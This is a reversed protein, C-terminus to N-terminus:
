HKGGPGAALQLITDVVRIIDESAVRVSEKVTVIEQLADGIRFQGAHHDHLQSFLERTDLGPVQEKVGGAAPSETTERILGKAYATRYSDIRAALLQLKTDAGGGHSRALAEEKLEGILAEQVRRAMEVMEATSQGPVTGLGAASTLEGISSGRDAGVATQKQIAALLSLVFRLLKKKKMADATCIELYSSIQQVRQLQMLDNVGQIVGMGPAPKGKRREPSGAPSRAADVTEALAGDRERVPSTSRGTGGHHGRAANYAAIYAPVSANLHRNITV